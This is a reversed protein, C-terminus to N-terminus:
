ASRDPRASRDQKPPEMTTDAITAPPIAPRFTCVPPYGHFRQRIFHSPSVHPKFRRFAGWVFRLLRESLVQRRGVRGGRPCYWRLDSSCVDSSWDRSFRTHRSRSSFFFFA